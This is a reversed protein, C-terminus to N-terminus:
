SVPLAEPGGPEKRRGPEGRKQWSRVGRGTAGVRQGKGPNEKERIGWDEVGSHGARRLM